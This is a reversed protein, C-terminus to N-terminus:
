RAIEALSIKQLSKTMETNIKQWIRKPPCTSILACRSNKKLCSPSLIQQGSLSILIDALNITQPRRSLSYGGGMGEKSKILKASKLDIALQKLFLPSLHYTKAIESLPVLRKQWELCLKTMLLIAYDQRKTIKM